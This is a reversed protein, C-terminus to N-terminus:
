AVKVKIILKELLKGDGRSPCHADEPFIVIYDGKKLSIKQYTEVTGHVVDSKEDYEELAKLQKADTLYIDEQGDIIYFIDAYKHHIEFYNEFPKTNIVNKFAYIDDNKINVKEDKFNNAKIYNLAIKFNEDKCLLDYQVKDNINGFIM